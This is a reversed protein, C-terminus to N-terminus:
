AWHYRFFARYAKYTMYADPKAAQEFPAHMSLVPTGCDVVDMGYNALMYAITGGGGLDIRGMEGMQWVVDEGDFCDRLAALFEPNADSGGSKGRAGGYKKLTVGYGIFSANTLDHTGAFNPDYGATVDASLCKSAALCRRTALSASHEGMLVALEVTENEFFRSQMGTNGYSGIEEKDALIVCRTKGAPTGADFIASIAAFSCVRDDQGFAGIMGRDFGIERAHGAPVIELEASAFDAETIDYAEHLWKLVAAKVADGEEDPLPRSGVIPNMAEGKFADSVKKVVMEQSLHPLLDSIVFVPDDPGDGVAVNVETGDKKFVSGYIALPITFWQYKKIGGYYHTKVYAIDHDEYLPMPKLDLRPCDLHAGVILMGNELPESGIEYLIVAKGRHNVYVKDGPKVAGKERYYDISKFGKAEAQRLAEKACLRETKAADLFSLYEKAYAETAKVDIEDMQQWVPKFTLKLNEVQSKTESM